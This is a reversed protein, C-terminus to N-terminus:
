LHAQAFTAVTRMAMADAGAGFPAGVVPLLKTVNLAGRRTFRSTLRYGLRTDLQARVEPPLRRLGSLLSANVLDLGTREALEVGDAGLVCVVVATRTVPDDLDRGRLRAIAAALRTSLLYLGTMGAPATVVLTAAGGLSSLLGTSAALRVHSGVIRRVAAEVDDDTAAVADAAVASAGAFPGIGAVARRWLEDILTNHLGRSSAVGM